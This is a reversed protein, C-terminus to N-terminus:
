TVFGVWPKGNLVAPLRERPWSAPLRASAASAVPPASGRRPAELVPFTPTLKFVWPCTCDEVVKHFLLLRQIFFFLFLAKSIMQKAPPRKKCRAPPMPVTYVTADTLTTFFTTFAAAVYRTLKFLILNRHLVSFQFLIVTTCYILFLARAKICKWLLSTIGTIALSM